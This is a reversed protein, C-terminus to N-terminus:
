TIGNPCYDTFIRLILIIPTANGALFVPYMRFHLFKIEMSNYACIHFTLLIWLSSLLSIKYQVVTMSRTCPTWLIHLSINKQLTYGKAWYNARFILNPSCLFQQYSRHESIYILDTVIYISVRCRFFISLVYLYPSIVYSINLYKKLSVKYLPNSCRGNTNQFSTFYSPYIFPRTDLFNPKHNSIVFLWFFHIRYKM